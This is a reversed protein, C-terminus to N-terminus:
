IRTDMCLRRKRKKEAGGSISAGFQQITIEQTEQTIAQFLSKAKSIINKSQPSNSSPTMSEKESSGSVTEETSSGNVAETSMSESTTASLSGSPKDSSSVAASSDSSVSTNGSVSSSAAADENATEEAKTETKETEAAKEEVEKEQKIEDETMEAFVFPSFTKTTFTVTKADKDETYDLKEVSPRDTEYDKVHYLGTTEPNEIELDSLTVTVGEGADQVTGEMVSLDVASIITRNELLSALDKREDEDTIEKAEMKYESEFGKANVDYTKAEQKASISSSSSSVSEQDESSASSAFKSTEAGQKEEATVTDTGANTYLSEAYVSTGPVSCAMVAALVLATWRQKKRMRKRRTKGFSVFIEVSRGNSECLQVCDM